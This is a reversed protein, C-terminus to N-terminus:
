IAPKEAEVTSRAPAHWEPPWSELIAFIVDDMSLYPLENWTKTPDKCARIYVHHFVAKFETFIQLNNYVTPSLKPNCNIGMRINM